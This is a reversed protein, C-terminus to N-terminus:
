LGHEDEVRSFHAVQTDCLREGARDRCREAHQRVRGDRAVRGADSKLNLHRSRSPALFARWRTPQDRWRSCKLGRGIAHDSLSGPRAVRRARHRDPTSVSSVMLWREQIDDGDLPRAFSGVRMVRFSARGERRFRREAPLEIARRSTSLALSVRYREAPRTDQHRPWQTTANPRARREVRSGVRPRESHSQARRIGPPVVPAVFTM